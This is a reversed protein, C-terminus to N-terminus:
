NDPDFTCLDWNFPYKKAGITVELPYPRGEQPNAFRRAELTEGIYDEDSNAMLWLEKLKPCTWRILGDTTRSFSLYEVIPKAEEWECFLELHTLSPLSGLFDFNWPLHKLSTSDVILRIPISTDKHALLVDTVQVPPQLLWIELDLLNAEEDYGLRIPCLGIGVLLRPRGREPWPGKIVTSIM